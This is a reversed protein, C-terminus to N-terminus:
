SIVTSKRKEIRYPLITTKSAIEESNIQKVIIRACVAGMDYLPRVMTTIGPRVNRTIKTEFLNAVKIDEPVRIGMDQLCYISNICSRDEVCLIAAVEEKKVEEKVKRFVDDKFDDVKLCVGCEKKVNMNDLAKYFLKELYEERPKKEGNRLFVVKKDESGMRLHELMDQMMMNMDVNATHYNDYDQSNLGFYVCPIKFGEIKKVSSDRIIDSIVIIGAAQKSRLLDIYRLEREEENYTNGLVIDYEYMRAIEEIGNLFDGVYYESVGPVLVGVLNSKKMVLSRAVPNPVYGTEEIVRLVRDKIDSSVPKSENIVRSVTSISVGAKKAVDKITVLM